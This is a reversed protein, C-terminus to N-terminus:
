AEGYRAAIREFLARQRASTSVFGYPSLMTGDVADRVIFNGSNHEDPKGRVELHPFHQALLDRLM